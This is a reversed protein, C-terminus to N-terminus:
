VDILAGILNDQNYVPKFLCALKNLCLYTIFRLILSDARFRSRLVSLIFDNDYVILQNAQLFVLHVEFFIKSLNM